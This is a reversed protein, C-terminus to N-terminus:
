LPGTANPNRTTYVLVTAVHSRTHAVDFLVETDARTCTLTPWATGGVSVALDWTKQEVATVLSACLVQCAAETAAKVRFRYVPDHTQDLTADMEFEGPVFRSSVVARKWSRRGLTLGGVFLSLGTGTGFALPSLSLSTRDITGTVAM